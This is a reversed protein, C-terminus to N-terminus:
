PVSSRDGLGRAAPELGAPGVQTSVSLLRLSSLALPRLEHGVSARM